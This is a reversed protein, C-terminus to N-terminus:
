GQDRGRRTLQRFVRVHADSQSRMTHNARVNDLANDALEKALGPDSLLRALQRSLDQINGQKALLGTVGHRIVEACGGAPYAIAPTGSAQAELICLGLGESESALVLASATRLLDAVDDRPGLFHVREGLLQDGLQRLTREYTPDFAVGAIALNAHALHPPLGAVARIVHDIGKAPTVRAVVLVIPADPDDTIRGRVAPDPPGPAFHEADIGSHIVHVRARAWAPLSQAVANSVGITATAGRVAIARALRVPSPEVRMHLHVLTPRRLLWGALVVENFTWGYGNADLVDARVRRAVRATRWTGRLIRYIERVLRLASPRGTRTNLTRLRPTELAVHRRGTDRWAKALEGEAPGALVLEVGQRELWEAHRLVYQQSGYLYFDHDVILVRCWTGAGATM